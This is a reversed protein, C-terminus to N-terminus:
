RCKRSTCGQINAEKRKQYNKDRSGILRGCKQRAQSKNAKTPQGKSVDIKISANM